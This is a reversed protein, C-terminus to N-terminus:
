INENIYEMLISIECDIYNYKFGQLKIFKPKKINNKKYYIYDGFKGKRISLDKGEIERIINTNNTKLLHLIDELEIEEKNKDINLSINLDGCKIYLGYGGNRLVVNNKKYQGIIREYNDTDNILECLKYKNQKIKEIDIDEHAKRFTINGNDNNRIVAGYKGIMYVNNDDIKIKNNTEINNSLETIKNLCEYCLEYWIKKNISIADLEDEMNKTYEYRFLEEYNNLLFELVIIGVPQIILKNKENGFVEETEIELLESGNLQFNKCKIKIGKVDMKKVYGRNQIKDIISSYTSPRGIGKSELKQVLKSENIHNKSNKITIKSIITNYDFFTNKKLILLYSYINNIKEYGNVEKWGGFIVQETSYKYINNNPATIVCELLKSKSDSMCSEISNNRILKYMSIEKNTINSDSSIDSININTPRIAEHADQTKNNSSKKSNLRNINENIYEKGYMNKIYKSTENIFESSYIMSDTRMYTIYGFEYLKQCISMTQKPSLNLKNSSVQQLRSTTFPLPAPKDLNKHDKVNFTHKYNVSKKLFDIMDLENNYNKNLTFQINNNTFYGLTNYMKEGLNNDIEKQNDYIIRLAPTQCRGVSLGKDYKYSINKWLMPSLKYGVILDLIQRAKQANVINMNIVSAKLIADNLAKKTIENFKIRKTDLPLNFVECIHWAIAEGERDDDMALLIESASKIMKKIKSIQKMKSEIISYMPTFNDTINICKLGNLERIHGYSAVCKYCEGLYKEIKDCKSPSEVILLKYRM